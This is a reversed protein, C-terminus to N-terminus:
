ASCHVRWFGGPSNYVAPSQKKWLDTCFQLKKIVCKQSNFSKPFKFFFFKKWIGDLVIAPSYIKWRPYDSSLMIWRSNIFKWRSYDSSLMIWRPNIVEGALVRAALIRLSSLIAAFWKGAVLYGAITYYPVHQLTVHGELIQNAVVGVVGRSDQPHFTSSLHQEPTLNVYDPSNGPHPIARIM